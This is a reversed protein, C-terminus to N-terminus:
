SKVFVVYVKYRNREICGKKELERILKPYKGYGNREASAAANHDADFKNYYSVASALRGSTLEIVVWLM